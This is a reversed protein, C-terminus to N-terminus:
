LKLTDGGKLSIVHKHGVGLEKLSKGDEPAFPGGDYGWEFATAPDYAPDSAAWPDIMQAKFDAWTINQPTRFTAASCFMPNDRWWVHVLMDEGYLEQRSKSPFDYAGLAKVPM